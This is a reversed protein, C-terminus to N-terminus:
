ISSIQGNKCHNNHSVQLAQFRDQASDDRERLEAFEEAKALLMSQFKDVCGQYMQHEEAMKQLLDLREQVVARVNSHQM